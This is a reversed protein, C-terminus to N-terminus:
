PLERGRKGGRKNLLAVTDPDNKGLIAWDLATLGKGDKANIDAEHELLLAVVDNQATGAAGALAAMGAADKANVDAGNVLLVAVVARHGFAAAFGLPATGTDTRASVDAKAALLAMAVTHHGKMAALHLPTMYNKTSKPDVNAGKDLLVKVVAVHGECAANHLATVGTETAADIPVGAALLRNVEEADGREAADRLAEASASPTVSVKTPASSVGAQTSVPPASIKGQKAAKLFFVFEGGADQAGHM